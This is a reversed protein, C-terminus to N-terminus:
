KNILAILKKYVVNNSCLVQSPQSFSVINGNFDTVTGGAETILVYGAAFDWPSLVCEFFADLRGCAVNAM